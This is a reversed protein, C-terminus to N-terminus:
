LPSKRNEIAEVIINLEAEIKVWSIKVKQASVKWFIM